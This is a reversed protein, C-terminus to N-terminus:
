AGPTPDDRRSVLGKLNRAVRGLLGASKPESSVGAAQPAARRADCLEALQGVNQLMLDRPFIKVGLERELRVLVRMALLSHGGLDFFNDRLGVRDLELAQGFAAAIAQQTPTTPAVFAEAAAASRDPDPLARKDIKGNPTLPFEALSVFSGPLMYEPLARRLYERLALPEIQAGARPVFWAVLRQDAGAGRLLVVAKEVDAQAALVTEIEGLEIRFGRLKIQNDIRRLFEIRGDPLRRVLDGTLYMRAGPEGGFPGSSGSSTSAAFPDPVFKEATLEPRRLYGRAVGAGGIALEGPVGVPQLQRGSGLVYLATNAIPRGITITEEREEIRAISSWITTETPGYLNFLTGVRPRLKQALELPLAEGGCLARFGAGGSWGAALLLRWTAPTAQMATARTRALLAALAQGDAATEHDVLVVRAGLSLPVYLELGAIDFSITTVAALADRETLVLGKQMALVFNALSRQEIQVGKPKGTSGSTYIVYALEGPKARLAPLPSTFRERDLAICTAGHEPLEPILSTQTLLLRTAQGEFADGVIYALRERPFAPDLPLYAGGAEMVALLAVLLEPSRELCVGVIVGPGVGRRVLEAALAASKEALERYTLRADGHELAVADPTRAAQARFLAPLTAEAPLALRTDNWEGLLARQEGETLMGLQSLPRDFGELVSELLAKYHGLMRTIREHDFLDTNYEWEVIVHEDEPKGSRGIRQEGRPIVVLNM